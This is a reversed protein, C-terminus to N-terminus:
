TIEPLGFLLILLLFFDGRRANKSTQPRLFMNYVALITTRAKSVWEHTKKHNWFFVNKEHNESKKQIKTFIKFFVHPFKTKRTKRTRHTTLWFDLSFQDQPIKNAKSHAIERSRMEELALSRVHCLNRARVWECVWESVWESVWLRVWECVSM